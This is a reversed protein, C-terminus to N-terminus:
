IHISNKQVCLFYIFKLANLSGCMQGVFDEERAKQNMVGFIDYKTSHNNDLISLNGINYSPREYIALFRSDM